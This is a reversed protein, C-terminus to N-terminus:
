LRRAGAPFAREAHISIFGLAMIFLSLYATNTIQGVDGLLLLVTLTVGAEVAYLFLPDRLVFVTAAYLGVCVLGGIWLGADLTVLGQTHYFWLNLPAVVCGLFTLRPGAVQFRTKLSVVWGGGLVALSAIGLAVATMRPDKFIELSVLWIVLGLVCLGGGIVLM